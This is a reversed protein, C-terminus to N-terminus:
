RGTDGEHREGRVMGVHAGAEPDVGRDAFSCTLARHAVSGGHRSGIHKMLPGLPIERIRKQQNEGDSRASIDAHWAGMRL